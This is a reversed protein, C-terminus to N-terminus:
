SFEELKNINVKETDVVKEEKNKNIFDLTEEEPTELNLIEDVKDQTM